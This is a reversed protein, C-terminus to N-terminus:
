TIGSLMSTRNAIAALVERDLRANEGHRTREIVVAVVVRRAAAGVRRPYLEAILM